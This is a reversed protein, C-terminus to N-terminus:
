SYTDHSTVCYVHRPLIHCNSCILLYSTLQYCKPHKSPLISWVNCFIQRLLWFTFERLFVGWIWHRPWTSHAKTHPSHLNTQALCSKSDMGQSYWTFMQKDISPTPLCRLPYLKQLNWIKSKLHCIIAFSTFMIFEQCIITYTAAIRGTIKSLENKAPLPM